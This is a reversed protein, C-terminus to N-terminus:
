KIHESAKDTKLLCCKKIIPSRPHQKDKKCIKKKAFDFVQQYRAKYSFLYALYSM